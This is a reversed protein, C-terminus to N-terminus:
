VRPGRPAGLRASAQKGQIQAGPPPRSKEVWRCGGGSGVRMSTWELNPVCAERGRCEGERRDAPHGARGGTVGVHLMWDRHGWPSVQARRLGAEGSALPGGPGTIGAEVRCGPCKRGCGCGGPQCSILLTEVRHGGRGALVRGRQAFSLEVQGPPVEPSSPGEGAPGGGGASM